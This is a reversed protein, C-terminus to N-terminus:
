RAEPSTYDAEDTLAPPTDDGDEQEAPKTHVSSIEAAALPDLLEDYELASKIMEFVRERVEPIEQLLEHRAEAFFHSKLRPLFGLMQRTKDLDVIVEDGAVLALVPCSIQRMWDPNLTTQLCRSFAAYVWGVSPQSRRLEPKTEFIQYQRDYGEPDRTLSNDIKFKRSSAMDPIHSFPLPKKSQGLAKLIQALSVALWPPAGKPIIMPSLIILQDLQYAYRHAAMLGLAGGMSHGIVAFSQSSLGAQAIMEDLAELHQDFSDIHVLQSQSGLQGSRGQGPWDIILCNYGWSTLHSALESYKECFETFGPLILVTGKSQDVQWYHGRLPYDRKEDAPLIIDQGWLRGATQGEPHEARM